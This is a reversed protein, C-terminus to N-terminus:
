ISILLGHYLTLIVHTCALFCIFIIFLVLSVLGDETIIGCFNKGLQVGHLTLKGDFLRVTLLRQSCLRIQYLVRFLRRIDAVKVIM